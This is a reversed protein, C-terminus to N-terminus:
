RLGGKALEAVADAFARGRAEFSEFQDFSACAPALLVIDGERALASARAVARRLDGARESPVGAGLARQLAEAAEGILLAYSARERAVRALADFALGKGRGGAIWIVKREFGQLAEAAAGPNTAKSDDVYRVGAVVGIRRCRHPLGEFGPLAGAAKEPDAGLVWAACLAALANKRNHRGELPLAELGIRTSQGRSWLVAADLELWAAREHEAMEPGPRQSLPVVRARTAGGFGRAHECDFDLIAWDDARQSEVSRRKAAVYHALDGHRDLHDPTIGLVVAVKPAFAETAELQFSSVELVAADLPRGLLELAPIGLNGAAQARWGAARLMAELLCVTTSKGNTGTVAVLPVRLAQSALEIDGIVRRAAARYREPPVGPSPVVLDFGSADPLPEGLQLEVDNPLEALGALAEAPREDAALVSAGARACHRAASLGSKGLGLM